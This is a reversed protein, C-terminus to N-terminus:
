LVLTSRQRVVDQINLFTHSPDMKVNVIEHEFTKSSLLNKSLKYSTFNTSFETIRPTLHSTHKFTCKAYTCALFLCGLALEEPTYKLHFKPEISLLKLLSNSLTKVEPTYNGVGLFVILFDSSTAHVLDFKLKSVLDVSAKELDSQSFAGNGMYTLDSLPPAYVEVVKAAVNLSAVGYLQLTHKSVYETSIYKELLIQALSMSQKQLRFQKAVESLWDMTIVVMDKTIETQKDFSLLPLQSREQLIQTCSVPVIGDWVEDRVSDFYQDGLVQQLKPRRHPDVVLIDEIITRMKQNKIRAIELNKSRPRSYNSHWNPMNVVGPWFQDVPGLQSTIWAVM